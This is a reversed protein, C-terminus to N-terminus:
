SSNCGDPITGSVAGFTFSLSVSWSTSKVPNKKLKRRIKFRIRFIGFKAEGPQCGSRELHFSNGHLRKHCREFIQRNPAM